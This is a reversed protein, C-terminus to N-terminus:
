DEKITTLHFKGDRIESHLHNIPVIIKSKNNKYSVKISKIDKYSLRFYAPVTEKVPNNFPLYDFNEDLVLCIDAYCSKNNDKTSIEGYTNFSKIANISVNIVENNSLSISFHEIDSNHRYDFHM